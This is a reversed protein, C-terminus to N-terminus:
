VCFVIRFHHRNAIGSGNKRRYCRIKIVMSQKEKKKNTDKGKFCPYTVATLQTLFLRYRMITKVM